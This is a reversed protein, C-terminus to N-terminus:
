TGPTRAERKIPRARHPDAHFEQEDSHRHRSGTDQDAEVHRVERLERARRRIRDGDLLRVAVRDHLRSIWVTAAIPGFSLGFGSQTEYRM